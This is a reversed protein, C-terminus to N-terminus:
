YTGAAPDELPRGIVIQKMEGFLGAPIGVLTAAAGRVVPNEGSSNYYERPKYFLPHRDVFTIAKPAPAQAVASGSGPEPDLGPETQAISRPRRPASQCGALATLGLLLFTAIRRRRNM